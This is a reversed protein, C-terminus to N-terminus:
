AAPLVMPPFVFWSRYGFYNERLFVAAAKKAFVELWQLMMADGITKSQRLEAPTKGWYFSIWGSAIACTKDVFQALEGADCSMVYMEEVIVPKGVRFEKLTAVDDDVKGKQPYLHVALFDLDEVIEKPVFGSTLGPRDLSWPVLGVTILHRPDQKRVAAAQKKVWAAAIAPRQRGKGELSIFQVFYSKGLPKNGLWDRSKGKGKGSGGVLPENMLDYCFVAPSSACCKSVAEWFVAQADWRASEELEDYWAPVYEKFYCALGTIDLYLGEREALRLLKTLQALADANPKTASDMFKGFQLHVRVVNAGLLKMEHFDQEVKPWEKDWYEELLRGQEDHDYNFGWAIFKAKGEGRVFGDGDAAVRIWPMSSAAAAAQCTLIVAAVGTLKRM